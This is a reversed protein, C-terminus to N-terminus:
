RQSFQLDELPAERACRRDPIIPGGEAPAKTGGTSNTAGWFPSALQDQFMWTPITPTDAGRPNISAPYREMGMQNITDEELLAM